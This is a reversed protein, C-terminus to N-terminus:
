RLVDHKHEHNGKMHVCDNEVTGWAKQSPFRASGHHIVGVKTTCIVKGGADTILKSFYWDESIDWAQYKGDVLRIGDFNAFYVSKDFMTALRLVMVGTNALLYKKPAGLIGLSELADVALNVDFTKPFKPHHVQRMTLRGFAPYTGDGIATSSIGREDKIPVVASCFDANHTNAEEILTDIWWPDPECDAHLMAFWGLELRERENLAMSLLTNCNSSLLSKGNPVVFVRHEKSATAYAAGATGANIQGGYIPLGLLVNDM